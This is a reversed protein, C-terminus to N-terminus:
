RNGLLRTFTSPNITDAGGRIQDAITITLSAATTWMRTGPRHCGIMLATALAAGALVAGVLRLTRTM